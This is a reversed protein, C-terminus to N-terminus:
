SPRPKPFRRACYSAGDATPKLSFIFFHFYTKKQWLSPPVIGLLCLGPVHHVNVM